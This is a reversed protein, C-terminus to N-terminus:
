DSDEDGDSIDIIEDEMSYVFAEADPHVGQESFVTDPYYRTCLQYVTHGAMVMNMRNFRPQLPEPCQAWVHGRKKCNHCTGTFAGFAPLEGAPRPVRRKATTRPNGSAKEVPPAMANLSGPSPQRNPSTPLTPSVPHSADQQSIM